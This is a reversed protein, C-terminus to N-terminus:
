PEIVTDTPQHTKLKTLMPGLLTDCDGPDEFYVGSFVVATVIAGDRVACVNGTYGGGPTLLGCKREDGLTCLEPREELTIGEAALSSDLVGFGMFVWTADTASQQVFATTSVALDDTSYTYEFNWSGDADRTKEFTGLTPDVPTSIYPQLDGATFLVAKDADDVVYNATGGCALVLPVAPVLLLLRKM